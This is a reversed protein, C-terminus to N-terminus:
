AAAVSGFLIQEPESSDSVVSGRHSYVSYIAWASGQPVSSDVFSKSATTGILTSEGGPLQRWVSWYIGNTKTAVWAVEVNGNNNLSLEVTTPPTPAPAPTPTPPPPINAGTYVAGPDAAALAFARIDAVAIALQDRLAELANTQAVTASKSEDRALIAANHADQATTLATEIETMQAPSIGYAGAAGGGAVAASWTTVHSVAWDLTGGITNPILEPMFTAEVQCEQCTRPFSSADPRADGGNFRQLGGRFGKVAGNFLEMAARFLKVAARFLEMAGPFLEMAGRFLEMAGQFLKVAGHLLKDAARLLEM